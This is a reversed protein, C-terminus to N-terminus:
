ILGARAAVAAAAARSPLALKLLVSGVQKKVTNESIGLSAAIAPNSMGRSMMRLVERERPSLAQLSAPPAGTPPTIRVPRDDGALALLPLRVGDAEPGLPLRIERERFRLGSGAVLDRVTGSVLVEDPSALAAVRLAVHVALGSPAETSDRAVEGVHLGCRLSSALLRRAAERLTAACRVARAAGDFAGLLAGDARVAAGPHAGAEAVIEVAETRWRELLGGWNRDGHAAAGRGADAIETALVTALARDAPPRRVPRVGTIFVEIEDSLRDVDGMWIPHADGAVIALQAGSIGAALARGAALPVRSDGARHLILTPVGIAPLVARIDISANMRVLQQAMRPSAGLREHRAWWARTTTDDAQGPAFHRLLFGTGWEAEIEDLFAEVKEPPSVYTAFSPYAGYLILARTRDPHAAAFLAAMAGGESAGLILARASGAADMVARVDDMRQELTPADAVPDSLGTGRKDFLILRSFAAVRTLLRVYNAEDWLLDLNNIFGPVYVLDLPGNGVVQYALRVDGSRAYRTQPRLM